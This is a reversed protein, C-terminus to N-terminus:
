TVPSTWSASWTKPGVLGDVGLNKENQFQRCVTESKDGYYGDPTGIGSWGRSKMQTQWKQINPRDASYYGSHCHPDPSEQGLYDNSPYPFKPATTTPPTPDPTPTSGGGSTGYRGAKVKGYLEDGPCSTQYLDRHGVTSSGAGASRCKDAGYKLANDLGVPQPDHEGVLGCVAFYDQNAQTSGNAASGYKTGRGEYLYDHPCAIFNYAIDSWGKTDMHYAQISRVRGDCQSHSTINMQPGEWHIAVGKPHASITNMSGQSSRAGWQSRSVFTTM